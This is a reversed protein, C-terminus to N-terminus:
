NGDQLKKLSLTIYEIRKQLLKVRDQLLEVVDQKNFYIFDDINTANKKIIHASSIQGDDYFFDILIEYDIEKLSAVTLVEIWLCPGHVMYVQDDVKLDKAEKKRM